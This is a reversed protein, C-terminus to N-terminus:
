KRFFLGVGIILLLAGGIKLQRALSTYEEIHKKGADIKQEVSDTLKQGWDRTVSSLSLLSSGTKVASEARHINVQGIEIQHSIYLASGLAAAGLLFFLMGLMRWLSM